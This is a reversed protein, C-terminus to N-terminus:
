YYKVTGCLRCKHGRCKIKARCASFRGPCSTAAEGEGSRTELEPSDVGPAAIPVQLMEWVEPVERM